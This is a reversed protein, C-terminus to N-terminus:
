DTFDSNLTYDAKIKEALVKLAALKILKSTDYAMIKEEQLIKNKINLELKM